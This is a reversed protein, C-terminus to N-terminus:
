DAASMMLGFWFLMWTSVGLALASFWRKFKLAVIFGLIAGPLSAFFGDGYVGLADVKGGRQVYALGGCAILTAVTPFFMAVTILVRNKEANWSSVLGIWAVVMILLPVGFIVWWTEFSM